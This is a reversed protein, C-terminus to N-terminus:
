CNHQKSRKFKAQAADLKAQASLSYGKRRQEALQELQRKAQECLARKHEADAKIKRQQTLRAKNRQQQLKNQRQEAQQLRKQDRPDLPEFMVPPTASPTYLAQNPCGRDTFTAHGSNDTCKYITAWITPPYCSLCCAILLYCLLLYCTFPRLRPHTAM